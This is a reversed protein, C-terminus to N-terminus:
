GRQQDVAVLLYALGDSFQRSTTFSALLQTTEGTPLGSNASRARSAELAAFGITYTHLIAYVRRAGSEDLGTNRLVDLMMQMRLIATRSVVPQKLYLYLAAPEHILFDRFREAAETIWERSDAAAARPKWRRAFLRDVVEALLDDKDQVHRYLAMPSVQLDTALSRITMKEFGGARVARTAADVVQRRTLSGWPARTRQSPAPM